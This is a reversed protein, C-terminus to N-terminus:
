LRSPDHFDRLTAAQIMAVFSGCCDIIIFYICKVIVADLSIIRL